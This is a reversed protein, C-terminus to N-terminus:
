LRTASTAAIPHRRAYHSLSRYAFGHQKLEALRGWSNFERVESYKGALSALVDDSLDRDAIIELLQRKHFAEEIMPNNKALNAIASLFVKQILQPRSRVPIHFFHGVQLHHRDEDRVNLVSHSGQSIAIEPSSLFVSRPIATKTMISDHDSIWLPALVDFHWEDFHTPICALWPFVGIVKRDNMAGVLEHLKAKSSVDVFEDSDIFFVADVDRAFAQRMFITNVEKQHRGAFDCYYCSWGERMACAERMVAGSGDSSRQDLLFM